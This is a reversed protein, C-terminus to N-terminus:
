KTILPRIKDVFAPNYKRLEAWQLDYAKKPFDPGLDVYKVGAKKLAAEEKKNQAERWDPWVKELWLTRENLCGRQDDSLSRWKDLNVLINVGANFFGPGYRFKTYKSWGFGVVAWLPWGYGDIVNRELATYVAPPGMRVPNAGLGKFFADYIPVSRLRFGEFRGNKAEKTTYVYFKVGSAIQTLYEVNMKARHIDNFMKWAGNKRQETLSNTALDSVGAEPLVGKYYNSPGLHMDVVGTKVANWQELSKIAAPGVISIKVKGACVKNVSDAWDAFFKAFIIRTPLFSAAKLKVETAHAVGSFVTAALALTAARKMVSM